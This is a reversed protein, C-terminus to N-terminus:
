NILKHMCAPFWTGCVIKGLSLFNAFGIPTLSCLPSEFVARRGAKPPEAGALFLNEIGVAVDDADNAGQVEPFIFVLVVLISTLSVLSVIEHALVFKDTIM